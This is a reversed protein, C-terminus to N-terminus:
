RSRTTVPEFVTATVACQQYRACPQMDTVRFDRLETLWLSSQNIREPIRLHLQIMGKNAHKKNQTVEM